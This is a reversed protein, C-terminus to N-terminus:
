RNLYNERAQEQSIASKQAYYDGGDPAGRRQPVYDGGGSQGYGCAEASHPNGAFMYAGGAIMLIVVATLFINAHTRM